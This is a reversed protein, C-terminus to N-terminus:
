GIYFLRNSFCTGASLLLVIGISHLIIGNITNGYQRRFTHIFISSLIVAPISGSSLYFAIKFNIQNQRMHTISGFAKMITSYVFDVGVAFVPPISFLLILLPTLLAGGMGTLGVLFGILFGVFSVNYDM